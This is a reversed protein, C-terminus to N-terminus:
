GDAVTASRTVTVAFEVTWDDGGVGYSTQRLEAPDAAFDEVYEALSIWTPDPLPGGPLDDLLDPQADPQAVRVYAEARAPLTGRRIDLGPLDFGASVPEAVPWALKLTVPGLGGTLPMATWFQGIPPNGAETLANFLRAFRENALGNVTDVEAEELETDVEYAVAAWHTAPVERTSVEVPQASRRGDAIALARDQRERELALQARHTSVLEPLRDPEALAQGVLDLPMGAARLVRITRAQRLQAAVYSRYGTIPDVDAPRLLGREDYFRLAKVSLGTSCAFVSISMM